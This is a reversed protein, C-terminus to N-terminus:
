AAQPPRRQIGLMEFLAEIKFPKRLVRMSGTPKVNSGTVIVVQTNAFRPDMELASRVEWGNMDDMQIDLLVLSPTQQNLFALAEAGSSVAIVDYGHREMAMRTTERQSRSPMTLVSASPKVSFFMAARRLVLPKAETAFPSGSTSGRASRLDMYNITNM